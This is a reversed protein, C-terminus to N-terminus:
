KITLEQETLAFYLNQLQHVYELEKLIIQCVFNGTIFRFKNDAMSIVINLGKEYCKDTRKSKEFGLKILWEETLTIPQFDEIEYPGITHKFDNEIFLYNVGIGM